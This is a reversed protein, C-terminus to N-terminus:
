CNVIVTSCILVVQSSRVMDRADNIAEELGVLKNGVLCVGPAWATCDEHVWMASSGSRLLTGTSDASHPLPNQRFTYPGYLFGLGSVNAGCGCLSCKTTQAALTRGKQHSIVIGKQSRKVPSSKRRVISALKNAQTQDCPEQQKSEELQTTLVLPKASSELSHNPIDAVETMKSSAQVKLETVISELSRPPSRLLPTMTRSVSQKVTTSGESEISAKLRKAAPMTEVSPLATQRGSSTEQKTSLPIRQEKESEVKRKKPSPQEPSAATASSKKAKRLNYEKFMYKPDFYELPIGESTVGSVAPVNDINMLQEESRESTVEPEGDGCKDIPTHHSGSLTVPSAQTEVQTPQVPMHSDGSNSPVAQVSRSNTVEESSAAVEISTAHSARTPQKQEELVQAVVARSPQTPLPIALKKRPKAVTSPMEQKYVGLQKLDDKMKETGVGQTILLVSSEHSVGPSM